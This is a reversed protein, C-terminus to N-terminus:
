MSRTCNTCACWRRTASCRSRCPRPRTPRMSWISRISPARALPLDYNYSVSALDISLGTVGGALTPTGITYALHVHTGGQGFIDELLYLNGGDLPQSAGAPKSSFSYQLGNGDYVEFHVGDGVDRVELQADNRRAVWGTDDAKRVLATGDLTLQERSQPACGAYQGPPSARYACRPSHLLAARGLWAGGRRVPTRWLRRQVPVKLGGRAGPLDLPVSAGYGGGANVAGAFGTDSERAAYHDGM